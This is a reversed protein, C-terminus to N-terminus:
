RVANSMADARSVEGSTKVTTLEASRRGVRGCPHANGLTRRTRDRADGRSWTVARHEPHPHEENVILVRHERVAQSLAATAEDLTIELPDSGRDVTDSAELAARIEAPLAAPGLQRELEAREMLITDAEAFRGVAQLAYVLLDNNFSITQPEVASRLLRLARQYAGNPLATVWEPPTSATAM